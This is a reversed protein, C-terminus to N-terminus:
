LNKFQSIIKEIMYYETNFFVTISDSILGMAILVGITVAIGGFVLPFIFEPYDAWDTKHYSWKDNNKIGDSMKKIAYKAFKVFVILGAIIFAVWLLNTVGDIIAQKYLVPYLKEVAVGLGNAIDELVKNVDFNIDM